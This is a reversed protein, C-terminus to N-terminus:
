QLEEAPASSRGTSVMYGSFHSIKFSASTGRLLVSFSEDILATGGSANLQTNSKFYGGSLTAGLLLSSLGNSGRLQQTFTLPMLFTTGHPEFDYAVMKGAVATVSIRLTPSSIAGAPVSLSFGLEPIELLGGAGDFTRSRTIPSALEVSRLLSTVQPLRGTTTGLVSGILGNNREVSAPATPADPSCASLLGLTALAMTLRTARLIRAAHNATSRQAATSRRM